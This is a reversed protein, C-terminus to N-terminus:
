HSETYKAYEKPTKYSTVAAGRQAAHQELQDASFQEQAEAAANILSKAEPTQTTM